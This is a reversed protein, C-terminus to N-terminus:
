SVLVGSHLHRAARAMGANRNTPPLENSLSETLSERCISLSTGRLFTNLLNVFISIRDLPYKINRAPQKEIFNRHHEDNIKM